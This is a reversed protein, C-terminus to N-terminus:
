NILNKSFLERFLSQISVKKNNESFRSNKFKTVVFTSYSDEATIRSGHDSLIIINIDKYNKNKEIKDFFTELFNIVCVREINHQIFKEKNTMKRNSLARKGEYDCNENLGYPIHPVMLHAFTLDYKNSLINIEIENLLTTLFIKHADPELISDILNIHRFSRWILKAISSGQLKWLSIFRSLFNNKYGKLYFNHKKYPDFQYCTRVNPHLCYGVQINQIVSINQFSDFLSNKVIDFEVLYQNDRVIDGEILKKTIFDDEFNKTFNLTNFMITLTDSSLSFSNNYLKLNKNIALERTKKIFKDGYDYNSAVSNIGSMEDLLIVLTKDKSSYDIENSIKKDFNLIMKPNILLNYFNFFLFIAFFTTYFKLMKKKSFYITLFSFSFFFLIFFLDAFYINPFIEQFFGWNPKVFNLNFLVNQDLGFSTLISLVFIKLNNLKTFFSDNKFYYFLLFYTIAYPIFYIIKDTFVLSKTFIWSPFLCLFLYIKYFERNIM